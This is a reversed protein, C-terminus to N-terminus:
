EQDLNKPKCRATLWKAYAEVDEPAHRRFGALANATTEAVPAGRGCDLQALRYYANTLTLDPEKHLHTLLGVVRDLDGRIKKDEEPTPSFDEPKVDFNLTAESRHLLAPPYEPPPTPLEEFRIVALGAHYRRLPRDGLAAYAEALVFHLQGHKAPYATFDLSLREDLLRPVLGPKDEDLEVGALAMRANLVAFGQEGHERTIEDASAAHTRAAKLDGQALWLKALSVEVRAHELGPRGYGGVLALAQELQTRAKDHDGAELALNGRILPVKYLGPHRSGLAAIRHKEALELHEGVKTNIHLQQYATVLNLHSDSLALDAGDELAERVRISAEFAEAAAKADGAIWLAYLGRENHADAVYRSDAGFLPALREEIRVREALLAPQVLGELAGIKNMLRLADFSIDACGFAPTTAGHEDVADVLGAADHARELAALADGFRGAAYLLEGHAFRAEARVGHLPLTDALTAAEAALTLATALDGGVQATRAEEIQQRVRAADERHLPDTVPAHCAQEAALNTACTAPDVLAPLQELVTVLDAPTTNALRDVAATFQRAGRELCAEHLVMTVPTGRVARDAECVGAHATEWTRAYGRLRNDLVALAEPDGTAALHERVEAIRDNLHQELGRAACPPPTAIQAGIAISAAVGLTAGGILWRRRPRRELEALLAPMDPYRQAPDIALARRLLEVLHGPIGKEGREPESYAGVLSRGSVSQPQTRAGDALPDTSGPSRPRLKAYPFPSRRYLAWYLTVGFSFVDSCASAKAGDYLEPAIFGRTGIIRRHETVAAFGADEPLEISADFESPAMEGDLAKVLGFDILKGRDGRVLINAPKVDRHILAPTHGHAAALGHGIQVMLAVVEQWVRLPTCWDALTAGDVYELVVYPNGGDLKGADHVAVINPHQLTGLARAENLLRKYDENSEPRDPRRLKIAVTRELLPDYAKHVVGMGGYSIQQQIEYRGIMRLPPPTLPDGFLLSAAADVISRNRDSRAASNHRSSLLSEEAAKTFEEM